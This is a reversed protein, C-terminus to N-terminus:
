HGPRVFGQDSARLIAGRFRSFQIGPLLHEMQKLALSGLDLSFAKNPDPTEIDFRLALERIPETEDRRWVLPRTYDIERFDLYTGVRESWEPYPCRAPRAYGSPTIPALNPLILLIRAPDLTAGPM